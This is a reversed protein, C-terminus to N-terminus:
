VEKLQLQPMENPPQDAFDIKSVVGQREYFQKILDPHKM